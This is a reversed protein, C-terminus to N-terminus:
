GGEEEAALIAEAIDRPRLATEFHGIYPARCTLEAILDAVEAAPRALGLERLTRPLGIERYFADLDGLVDKPRRELLLQVRLAYGVMEGHLSGAIEPVATLGRNMAHAISLGGSEFGLGSLLVNAEVIREVADTVESNRVARVAEVANARILAYCADALISATELPPTGFFNQGGALRCQRVEFTKSLADGIGAVLYRVPARAVISTDVLVVDPNRPMTRVEAVRHVEDYIVILRSTPADNSAVTPVVILPLDLSMAVGKATDIAKGGGLAVIIRAGLKRAEDTKRGIEGVTCEGGFHLFHLQVGQGEAAQRLGEGLLSTVLSDAVIAAQGGLSLIEQPLSDLAGAGQLYRRPAGLTRLTTQSMGSM